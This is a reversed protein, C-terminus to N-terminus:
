KKIDSTGSVHIKEKNCYAGNSDAYYLNNEEPIFIASYHLFGNEVYAIM